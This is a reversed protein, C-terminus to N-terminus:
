VNPVNDKIAKRYFNTLKLTTSEKLSGEKRGGITVGKSRWEKVKNRLGTGLRKTVHHLCEEKSIKMSDGYVDLELLHQYTKPEGDSLVSMYRMGCNEVSRKWLIEAAKAEMANSSRFYNEANQSTPKTGYASNLVTNELIGKETTGEPCYKSLIEYDIVLVTLIDVVIGIGYLSTHGRKQWTGDYSVTSYINDDNKDSPSALENHNISRRKESGENSVCNEVCGSIDSNEAKDKEWKKSINSACMRKRESPRCKLKGYRRSVTDM